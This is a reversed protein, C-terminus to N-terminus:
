RIMNLAQQLMSDAATVIKAGASYAQQTVILKTFETSIDTNSAELSAGAINQGSSLLVPSGSETTSAFSGGDLPKLANAASFTATVVQAVAVQQNNSYTAVVRGNTDVGVDVFTGAAYGNQSLSTVSATGNADAFETVGGTGHNLTINGLNVGNITMGPITTSTVAPSLSGAANFTYNQPVKTWMTATGTATSDSMYYMNWTDSPSNGTKAWRIQVNEPSGNASYITIASGSISQSQFTTSNAGSITNVPGTAPTPLATQTGLGLGTTANTTDTISMSDTLDTSALTIQVKGTGNLAVTATGAGSLSSARLATQMSGLATTINTGAAVDIGVHGAVPVYAGAGSNYYDFTLSTGNVTVSSSTGPVM